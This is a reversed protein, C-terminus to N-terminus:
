DIPVKSCSAAAVADGGSAPPGTSTMMTSPESVSGGLSGGFVGGIALAAAGAVGAATGFVGSRGAAAGSVGSRGAATGFVGSIAGDYHLVVAGVVGGGGALTAGGGDAEAVHPLEDADEDPAQTGDAGGAAVHPADDADAEAAPGHGAIGAIGIGKAAATAPTTGGVAISQFSGAVM